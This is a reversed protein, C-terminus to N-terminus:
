KVSINAKKALDLMKAFDDRLFKDWDEPGLYASTVCFEKMRNQLDPLVLIKQFYAAL